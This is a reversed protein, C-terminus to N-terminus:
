RTMEPRRKSRGACCGVEAMPQCRLESVRTTTATRVGAGACVCAEECVRETWPFLRLGSAEGQSRQTLAQWSASAQPLCAHDDPILSGRRDARLFSSEASDRM